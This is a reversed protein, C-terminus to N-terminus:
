EKHDSSASYMEPWLGIIWLMSTRLDYMWRRSPFYSPFRFSLLVKKLVKEPYHILDASNDV